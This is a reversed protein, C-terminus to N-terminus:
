FLISIRFNLHFNAIQKTFSSVLEELISFLNRVGFDNPFLKEKEGGCAFLYTSFLFILLQNRANMYERTVVLGRLVLERVVLSAATGSFSVLIRFSPARPSLPEGSWFSLGIGSM